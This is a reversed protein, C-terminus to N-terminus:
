GCYVVEDGWEAIFSGKFQRGSETTFSFEGDVPIGVEVRRFSIEGNLQQLPDLEPLIYALGIQGTEDPFSFTVPLKIDPSQWISVAITTISDYPISVTFAGGDWPACDRNITADLVQMPELSRSSYIFWAIGVILLGIAMYLLIRTKM